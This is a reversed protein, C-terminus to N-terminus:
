DADMRELLASKVEPDDLQEDLTDLKDQQDDGSETEAYDLKVDDEIDRVDAAAEARMAQGCRSCFHAERKEHYGCRPCEVPGIHETESEEVELGHMRALERDADEAFVKIYRSAADSGTVWGYRNEVYAQSLGKSAHYSASSKRFNTLTVPKDVEAREAPKKFMKTLMRYSIEEPTNLKSWLPADRDDPAPHEDLWDRVYPVSPILLVTRRGQKGDATM